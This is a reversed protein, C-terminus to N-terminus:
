RTRYIRVGCTTVDQPVPPRLKQVCVMVKDVLDFELISEAIREACKELLDFQEEEIISAVIECVMGYHVTDNINDSNAAAMLDAQIDLDFSLPQRRNREEPLLGCLAMLRLGRIEIHDASM